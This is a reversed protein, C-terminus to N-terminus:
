SNFGFTDWLKHHTAVISKSLAFRGRFNRRDTRAKTQAVTSLFIRLEQPSFVFGTASDIVVGTEGSQLLLTAAVSTDSIRYKM